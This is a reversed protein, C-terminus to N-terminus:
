IVTPASNELKRKRRKEARSEEASSDEEAEQSDSSEQPQSDGGTKPPSEQPDISVSDVISTDVIASETDVVSVVPASPVDHLIAEAETCPTGDPQCYIAFCERNLWRAQVDGCAFPLDPIQPRTVEGQHPISITMGLWRPFAKIRVAM